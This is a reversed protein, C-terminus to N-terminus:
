ATWPPHAVAISRWTIKSVTALSMPDLIDVTRAAVYSFQL